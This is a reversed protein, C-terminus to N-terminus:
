GHAIILAPKPLPWICRDDWYEFGQPSTHWEFANGLSDFEAPIGLGKAFADANVRAAKMDFQMASRLHKGSLGQRRYFERLQKKILSM